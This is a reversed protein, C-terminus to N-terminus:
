FRFLNQFVLFITQLGEIAGDELHISLKGVLLYLLELLGEVILQAVADRGVIAVMDCSFQLLYVVSANQLGGIVFPEHGLLSLADNDGNLVHTCGEGEVLQECGLRGVFVEHVFGVRGTELATEQLSAVEAVIEFGIETVVFFTRLRLKFVELLLEHAIGPLDYRSLLHYVM